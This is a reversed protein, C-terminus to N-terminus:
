AAIKKRWLTEIVFFDIMRATRVEDLDIEGAMNGQFLSEKQWFGCPM